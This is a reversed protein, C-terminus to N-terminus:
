DTVNVPFIPGDVGKAVEAGDSGVLDPLCRNWIGDSGTM